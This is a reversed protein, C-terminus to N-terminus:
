DRWLTIKLLNILEAGQNVKESTLENGGWEPTFLRTYDSGRDRMVELIGILEDIGEKNLHIEVREADDLYEVTLIKPHDM